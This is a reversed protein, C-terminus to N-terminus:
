RDRRVQLAARPKVFRVSPSTINPDPFGKLSTTTLVSRHSELDIVKIADVPCGDVCAPNEGQDIRQYCLHCKEVKKHRQNYQPVNYPCAYICMGCGICRNHNHLVIGDERKTYARVPCVKMCEPNACHNCTLSMYIRAPMGYANESIPYVKRWRIQPDLQYKNKCAMECSHCGICRDSDVLFGLKKAM